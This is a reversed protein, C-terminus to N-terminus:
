THRDRDRAQWLRRSAGDFQVGEFYNAEDDGNERGGYLGQFGETELGTPSDDRRSHRTRAQSAPRSRSRDIAIINFPLGRGTRSGHGTVASGLRSRNRAVPATYSPHYRSQHRAEALHAPTQPQSSSPLSDNYVRYNSSPTRPQPTVTQTGRYPSSAHVTSSPSSTPSPSPHEPSTDYNSNAMRERQFNLFRHGRRSSSAGSYSASSSSQVENRQRTSIRSASAQQRRSDNPVSTRVDNANLNQPEVGVSAASRGAVPTHDPEEASLLSSSSNLRRGDSLSTEHRSPTIKENRDGRLESNAISATSIISSSGLSSNRLEERLSRM